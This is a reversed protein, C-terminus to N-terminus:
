ANFVLKTEEKGDRETVTLRDALRGVLYGALRAPAAPDDIM